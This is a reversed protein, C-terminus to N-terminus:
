NGYIDDNQADFGMQIWKHDTEENYDAEGGHVAESGWLLTQSFAFWDGGTYGFHFNGFEEWTMVMGHSYVYNSNSIERLITDNERVPRVKYDWAGGPRVHDYFYYGMLPISFSSINILTKSNADLVAEIVDETQQRLEDLNYAKAAEEKYIWALKDAYDRKDEYYKALKLLAQAQSLLVSPAVKQKNATTVLEDASKKYMRAWTDYNKADSFYREAMDACYRWSQHGTPDIMNVPNNGCYSYLHQTWPEYANGTYTDQTLFRGTSANYYRANMYQLGTSTDTISSTFTVENDFTTEETETLNGFEDYTYGKILTGDPSVIATVSGRIDYHYFYYQDAWEYTTGPDDDDDFRKSAIIQGSLDVINETLLDGHENKTYLITSGIYFYREEQAEETKSMRQGGENYVNVNSDTNMTVEGTTEDMIPTSVTAETMQNSLDYAYSTSKNYLTTTDGV